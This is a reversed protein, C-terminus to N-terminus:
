RDSTRARQRVIRASAALDGRDQASALDIIAKLEAATREAEARAVVKAIEARIRKRRERVGYVAGTVLGGLATGISVWDM